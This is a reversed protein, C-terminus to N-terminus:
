DERQTISSPVSLFTLTYNRIIEGKEQTFIKEKFSFNVSLRVKKVFRKSVFPISSANIEKISIVRELFLRSVEFLM